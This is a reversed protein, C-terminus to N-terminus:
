ARDGSRGTPQLDGALLLPWVSLGIWAPLGAAVGVAFGAWQAASGAPLAFSAGAVATGTLYTIGVVAGFLATARRVTGARGAVVSVVTVWTIVLLLAALQPGIQLAFPVVGTVLLLSAVVAAGLGLVGVVTAVRASRSGPLRAGVALAVPVLAALQVVLLWDNATGLADWGTPALDTRWPQALVYFAVLLVNAPIGAAASIRAWRAPWRSGAPEGSRAPTDDIRIDGLM